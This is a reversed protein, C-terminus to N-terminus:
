DFQKSVSDFAELSLIFGAFLFWGWQPTENLAMYGALGLCIVGPILLLKKMSKNQGIYPRNRTKEVGVGKKRQPRRCIPKQFKKEQYKETLKQSRTRM